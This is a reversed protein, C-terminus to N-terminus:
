DPVIETGRFRRGSRRSKRISRCIEAASRDDGWSGCMSLFAETSLQVDGSPQSLSQQILAVVEQSVSRNDMKAKAKLAEYLDDDLRKVQLTAM